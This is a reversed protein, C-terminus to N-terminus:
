PHETISVQFSVYCPYALAHGQKQYILNSSIYVPARTRRLYIGAGISSEHDQLLSQYLRSGLSCTDVQPQYKMPIGMREYGMEWLGFVM